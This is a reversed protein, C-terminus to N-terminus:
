DSLSQEHLKLIVGEAADIRRVAAYAEDLWARVEPPPPPPAGSDPTPARRSRSPDRPLPQRAITNGLIPACRFSRPSLAITLSAAPMPRSPVSDANSTSARALASSACPREIMLRPM